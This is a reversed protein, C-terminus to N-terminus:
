VTQCYLIHVGTTDCTEVGTGHDFGNIFECTGSSGCQCNFYCDDATLLKTENSTLQNAVDIDFVVTDSEDCCSPQLTGLLERKLPDQLRDM